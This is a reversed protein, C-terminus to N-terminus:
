IVVLSNTIGLHAAGGDRDLVYPQEVPASLLTGLPVRSELFERHQWKNGIMTSGSTGVVTLTGRRAADGLSARRPLAGGEDGVALRPRERACPGGLPLGHRVNPHMRVLPSPRM